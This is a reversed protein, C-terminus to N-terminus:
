LVGTNISNIFEVKASIFTAETIESAKPLYFDDSPLQIGNINEILTQQDETNSFNCVTKGNKVQWYEVWHNGGYFYFGDKM